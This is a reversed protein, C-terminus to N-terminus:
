PLLRASGINLRYAFRLGVSFAASERTLGHWAFVGVSLDPAIDHRLFAGVDVVPRAVDPLRDQADVALGATWGEAIPHAATAYLTWYDTGAGEARPFVVFRRGLSLDLATGGSLTLGTDARLLHEVQGTGLSKRTATPLRTQLALDLYPTAEAADGDLLTVSGTLRADGLGTDHRGRPATGLSGIRPLYSAPGDVSLFPLRLTLATREGALGVDVPASLAITRGPGGQAGSAYEPAIRLRIEDAAAPAAAALLLGAVAPLLPSPRRAM